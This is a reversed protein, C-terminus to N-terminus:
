IAAFCFYRVYYQFYCSLSANVDNNKAMLQFTNFGFRTICKLKSYLQLSGM